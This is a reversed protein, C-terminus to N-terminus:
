SQPHHGLFFCLSFFSLFTISLYLSCHDDLPSPHFLASLRVISFPSEQIHNNSPLGALAGWETSSSFRLAKVSRDERVSINGSESHDCEGGSDQGQEGL